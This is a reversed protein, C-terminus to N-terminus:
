WWRVSVRDFPLRTGFRGRTQGYESKFAAQLYHSYAFGTQEAVGRNVQEDVLQLRVFETNWLM